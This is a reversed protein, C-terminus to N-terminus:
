DYFDKKKWVNLFSFLCYRKDKFILYGLSLYKRVWNFEVDIFNKGKIFYGIDIFEIFLLM